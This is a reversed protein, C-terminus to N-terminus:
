EESFNTRLRQWFADDPDLRWTIAEAYSLAARQREDYVGSTEFNMLEDFKGKSIGAESSQQNGCYECKVSRSVYM